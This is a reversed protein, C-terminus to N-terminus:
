KAAPKAESKVAVKEKFLVRAVPYAALGFVIGPMVEYAASSFGLQRWVFMAILGIAMVFLGQVQSFPRKVALIFLLPAFASALASWSVTVLQFVSKSGYLAIILAVVTVLFTGLKAFM